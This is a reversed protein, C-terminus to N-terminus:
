VEDGLKTFDASLISPSVIISSKSCKDVRVNNMRVSRAPRSAAVRSGALKQTMSFAM